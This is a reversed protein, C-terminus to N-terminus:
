LIGQIIDVSGGMPEGFPIVLAVVNIRSSNAVNGVNASNYAKHRLYSGSGKKRYIIGERELEELARKSTIRSVNFEEALEKETPLRKNPQFEGNKIKEKLCDMIQIYLPRNNPVM